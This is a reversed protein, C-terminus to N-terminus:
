KKPTAKVVIRGIESVNHELQFSNRRHSIIASPKPTYTRVRSADTRNKSFTGIYMSPFMSKEPMCAESELRVICSPDNMLNSNIMREKSQKTLDNEENKM